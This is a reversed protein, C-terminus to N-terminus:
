SEKHNRTKIVKMVEGRIEMEENKYGTTYCENKLSQFLNDPIKIDLYGMNFFHMDDIKM